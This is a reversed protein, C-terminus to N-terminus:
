AKTPCVRTVAYVDYEDTTTLRAVGVHGADCGGDGRGALSDLMAHEDTKWRQDFSRWIWVVDVRRDRLFTSYAETTGFSRRGITEPFFESDLVGGARVVQFMTVKGDGARLVRHVRGPEFSASNVYALGEVDPKRVLSGWAYNTDIWWWAVVNILLLVAVVQTLLRPPREPILTLAWPVFVILARVPVTIAIEYVIVGIGPSSLGPSSMAIAAAPLSLLTVVAVHPALRAPREGTWWAWIVALAALPAIVVVHTSVAVAVAFTAWWRHGRRWLGIGVILPAAGWLFVLQGSIPAAVLTPNVLVGVARWGHRLEPWAWFTAAICAVAGLVLCVAVARDGFVPRLLAATLTPPVGYPFTYSRGAGLVSSHLTLGEGHFIRQAVFWSAAHSGMSDLTVLLRPRLLAVLVGVWAAAAAIFAWQALRNPKATIEAQQTTAVTGGNM